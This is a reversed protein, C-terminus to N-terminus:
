LTPDIGLLEVVRASITRQHKRLTRGQLLMQRLAYKASMGPPVHGLLFASLEDSVGCDLALTKFTRRLAHGRGNRPL